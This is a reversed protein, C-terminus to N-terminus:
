IYLSSKEKESSSNESLDYDRKLIKLFISDKFFYYYNDKKFDPSKLSALECLLSYYMENMLIFENIKKYAKEFCPDTPPTSLDFVYNPICAIIILKQYEVSEELTKSYKDFALSEELSPLKKIDFKVKNEEIKEM